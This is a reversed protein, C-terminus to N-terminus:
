PTLHEESQKWPASHYVLIDKPGCYINKWSGELSRRHGPKQVRTATRTRFRAIPDPFANNLLSEEDQQPGLTEMSVPM